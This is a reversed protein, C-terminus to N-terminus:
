YTSSMDHDNDSKTSEYDDDGGHDGGNEDDNARAKGQLICMRILLSKSSTFIIAYM